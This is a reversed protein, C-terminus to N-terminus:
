CSVVFRWRRDIAKSIGIRPTALVPRTPPRGPILRLPGSDLLDIGDLDGTVGLAQALKGPGDSLNQRRGRRREMVDIGTVPEGGRLLVAAGHDLEGTAVNLCWHVGYSRYVYATGPEAFMSGNRATPGRYAHSAPDNTGDYAEVETIEIETIDGEIESRLRSGLLGRAAELVPGQLLSQLDTV